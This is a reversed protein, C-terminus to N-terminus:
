TYSRSKSFRTSQRVRLEAAGEPEKQEALTDYSNDMTSLPVTETQQAENKKKPTSEIIDIKEM